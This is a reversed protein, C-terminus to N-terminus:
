GRLLSVAVADPDTKLGDPVAHVCLWVSDTEAIISHEVGAKVTKIDGARYSEKAEGVFVGTGLICVSAHDYEHKHTQATHGAPLAMKRFYVGAIVHHEIAPVMPPREKEVQRRKAERMEARHHKQLELLTKEPLGIEAIAAALGQGSEVRRALEAVTAVSLTM